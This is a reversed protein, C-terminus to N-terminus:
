ERTKLAIIKSRARHTVARAMSPAVTTASPLAPVASARPAAAVGRTRRGADRGASVGTDASRSSVGCGQWPLPERNSPSGAVGECGTSAPDAKAVQSAVKHILLLLQLLALLHLLFSLLPLHDSRGSAPAPTPTRIRPGPAAGPEDRQASGM